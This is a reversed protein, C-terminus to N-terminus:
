AAAEDAARLSQRLRYVVEANLSRESERAKDSLQQRLEEPCRVFLPRRVRQGRGEEM